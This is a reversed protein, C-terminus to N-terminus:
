LCIPEREAEVKAGIKELREVLLAYGRNISYVQRLVSTGKAALMAILLITAPRLAPPCVLDAAHLPTPGTIFVRHPDALLVDAGLKSLETYYIARHDYVWDHVLTQGKAATAIVAFFPLNDINLGPYPRPHIPEAAAVLASPETEIDVLKTFGNESVYPASLSYCFGMTSLTLLELELFDIPARRITLASGTVAAAAIFFMADTPDEALPYEIDAEIHAVGTVFLTATGIGGIVVGLRSLFHCAEQVQYNASAYKITSTGAISAAALLANITATDSAELLIIEAPRLAGGTVDYAESETAVGVGFKELAFLHPRITRKGLKCGGAHPLSFRPTDHALAGIFMLISRTRAAAARDIDALALTDPRTLTLTDGSWTAMVGISRLVELIREVEEIRPVHRLVTKGHNLLSAALLAVAGNKSTNVTVEGSLKRGGEIRFNLHSEPTMGTM